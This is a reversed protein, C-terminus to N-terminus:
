KGGGRGRRGGKGGGRVPSTTVVGNNNGGRGSNGSKDRRGGGYRSGSSGESAGQQGVASCSSLHIPLARNNTLFARHSICPSTLDIWYWGNAGIGRMDVAGGRGHM